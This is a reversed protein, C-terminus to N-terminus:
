KYKVNSSPKRQFRASQRQITAIVPVGRKSGPKYTTRNSNDESRQGGSAVFGLEVLFANNNAINAVRLADAESM